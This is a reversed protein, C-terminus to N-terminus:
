EPSSYGHSRGRGPRALRDAREPFHAQDGEDAQADNGRSRRRRDRRRRGQLQWPSRGFSGRDLDHAHRRVREDCPAPRHRVAARRPPRGHLRRVMVGVPVDARRRDAGAEEGGVGDRAVMVVEASCPRRAVEQEAHGLRRCAPQAPGVPGIRVSAPGARVERAEVVARCPDAVVEPHQVVDRVLRTEAGTRERTHAPQDRLRLAPGAGLGRAGPAPGVIRVPAHLVVAYAHALRADHEDEVREGVARVVRGEARVCARAGCLQPRQGCATRARQRAAGVLARCM